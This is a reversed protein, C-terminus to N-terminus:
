RETPHESPTDQNQHPPEIAELDLIFVAIYNLNHRKSNCSVLKEYNISTANIKRMYHDIFM